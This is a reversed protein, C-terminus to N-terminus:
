KQLGKTAKPKRGRQPKKALPVVIAKRPLKCCKERLAIGIVHKCMYKKRFTPCDCLSDMWDLKNLKLIWFSGHRTNTYEDLTKFKYNRIKEVNEIEFTIDNEIKSSKIYFEKATDEESYNLYQADSLWQAAETWQNLKIEPKNMNIRKGERYDNSLEATM